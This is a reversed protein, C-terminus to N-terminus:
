MEAPETALLAIACAANPSCCILESCFVTVIEIVGGSDAAGVAAGVAVGTSCTPPAVAAGVTAAVAAGVTAGLSRTAAAVAVDTRAVGGGVEELPLEDSLPESGSSSRRM